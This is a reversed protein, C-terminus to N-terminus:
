QSFKTLMAPSTASLRIQSMQACRLRRGFTIGSEDLKAASWCGSSFRLRCNLKQVVPKIPCEGSKQGAPRSGGDSSAGRCRFEIAASGSLWSPSVSPTASGSRAANDEDLRVEATAAPRM